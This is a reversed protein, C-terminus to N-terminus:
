SLRTEQGAEITVRHRLTKGLARFSMDHVGEPVDTATWLDKSKKANSIGMSAGDLMCEVPLSQITLIGVRRPLAARKEDGTEFIKVRPTFPKLDYVVVQGTRVTLSIEQPVFGEKVARVVHTGANVGELILGGVDQHTTGRYVGDVFVQIGASARIQIHGVGVRPQAGAVLAVGLWGSMVLLYLLGRSRLRRSAQIETVIGRITRRFGCRM